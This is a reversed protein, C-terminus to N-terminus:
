ILVMTIERSGCSSGLVPFLLAGYACKGRINEEGRAPFGTAMHSCALLFRMWIADGLVRHYEAAFISTGFYVTRACEFERELAFERREARSRVSELRKRHFNCAAHARQIYYFRRLRTAM